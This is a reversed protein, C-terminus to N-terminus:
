DMILSSAQAEAVCLRFNRVFGTNNNTRYYLQIRDGKTFSLDESFTIYNHTLNSRQTGFPIDNKYIRAYSNVNYSSKLDFKVRYIADTLTIFEKVKTFIIDNFKSRETDAANFIM